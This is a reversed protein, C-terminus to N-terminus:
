VFNISRLYNWAFKIRHEYICNRLPNRRHYVANTENRKMACLLQLKFIHFCNHILNHVEYSAFTTAIVVFLHVSFLDFSELLIACSKREKKNRKSSSSSSTFILLDTLVLNSSAATTLLNSPFCATNNLFILSLWNLTAEFTIPVRLLNERAREVFSCSRM